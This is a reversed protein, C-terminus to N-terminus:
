FLFLSVPSLPPVNHLMDISLLICFPRPLLLDASLDQSDRITGALRPLYPVGWLYPTRRRNGVLGSSRERTTRSTREPGGKIRVGDEGGRKEVSSRSEREREKERTKSSEGLKEKRRAKVGGQSEKAVVSPSFEKPLYHTSLM